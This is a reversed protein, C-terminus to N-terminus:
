KGGLLDEMRAWLFAQDILAQKLEDATFEKGFLIVKDTPNMISISQPPNM